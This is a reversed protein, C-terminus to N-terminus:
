SRYSGYEPTERLKARLEDAEARWAKQEPTVPTARGIKRELEVIAKWLNRTTTDMTKAKEIQNNIM